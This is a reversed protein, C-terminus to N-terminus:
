IKKENEKERRIKKENKFHLITSIVSYLLCILAIVMVCGMMITEYLKEGYANIYIIVKETSYGNIYITFFIGYANIYIIVKETSYGNIYITFFIIVSQYLFIFSGCIAWLRILAEKKKGKFDGMNKVNKNKM